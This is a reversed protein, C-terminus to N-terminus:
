AYSGISTIGDPLSTLNLNSCDYFANGEIRTISNPLSKLTITRYNYFLYERIKTCGEPVTIETATGDILGILDDKYTDGSSKNHYNLAAKSEQIFLEDLYTSDTM